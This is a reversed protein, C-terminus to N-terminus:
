KNLIHLKNFWTSKVLILLKYNNYKFKIINIIYSNLKKNAKNKIMNLKLRIM